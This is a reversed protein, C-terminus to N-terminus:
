WTYTTVNFMYLYDSLYDKELAGGYIYVARLEESYVSTHSFRGSPVTGKQPPISWTMNDLFHCSV